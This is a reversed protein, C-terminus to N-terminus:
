VLRGSDYFAYDDQRTSCDALVPYTVRTGAGVWAGFTSATITIVAGNITDITHNAKEPTGATEQGRNYVTITEGAKYMAAAATSTMTIETTSGKSQVAQAPCLFRAGVYAGRILITLDQTGDALNFRSGIVRGAVSAPAREAEAFDYVAPHALDIQVPNGPELEVWAGVKVTISQLGDGLAIVAQAYAGAQAVSIGPATITLENPGEAQVRPLDVATLEQGGMVGATDIKVINPADILRAPEVRSLIADDAELSVMTQDVAAPPTTSVLALRVGDDSRQQTIATNNLVLYGGALEELSVRGGAVMDVTNTSLGQFGGLGGATEDIWAEPIGYGFGLALTDYTGRAGTGSSEMVTRIADTVTGAYGATVTLTGGHTLDLFGTGNIGRESIKLLVISGLDADLSATNDVTASWTLLESGGESEIVGFGSSPIAQNMWGSGTTTKVPLYGSAIPAYRIPIVFRMRRVAFFESQYTGPELFYPGSASITLHGILEDNGQYVWSIVLAPQGNRMMWRPESPSFSMGSFPGTSDLGDSLVNAWQGLWCVSDGISDFPDIEASGSNAAQELYVLVSQDFDGVPFGAFTAPDSPDVAYLDGKTDSGIPKAITRVLPMSRFKFGRGIPEAVSDIQGKWIERHYTGTTWQSDLIRGEPSVLHAHVTVFRGRWVIPIDSGVRYTPSEDDYKYAYGAVGRTCGTFTTGTKGTYGVLERGLYLLGASAFGTTDDVTITTASHALDTTLIARNTAQKFLIPLLGSDKLSDYDLTLDFSTGSSGGSKRDLTISVSQDTEITLADVASVYGSPLGISSTTDVRKPIREVFVYPIGEITVAYVESWGRKLQTSNSV